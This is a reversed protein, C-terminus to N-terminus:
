KTRHALRRENPCCVESVSRGRRGVGAPVAGPILFVTLMPSARRKGARRIKNLTGSAVGNQLKM